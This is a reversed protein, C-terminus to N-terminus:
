DFDIPDGVEIFMQKERAIKQMILNTQLDEGPITLSPRIFSDDDQYSEAMESRLDELSRVEAYRDSAALSLVSLLLLRTM